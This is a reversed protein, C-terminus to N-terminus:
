SNEGGRIRVDAQSNSEQAPPEIGIGWARNAFIWFVVSAVLMWGIHWWLWVPFGTVVTSNGWLFWPIAFASLAFGVVIWGGVEIGRM